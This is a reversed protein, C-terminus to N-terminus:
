AICVIRFGVYDLRNKPAYRSRYSPRCDSRQKVWAGGRVVRFHHNGVVRASGDKPHEVYSNHWFDLCWESVHGLMDVLGYKNPTWRPPAKADPPLEISSRNRVPWTQYHCNGVHIDVTCKAKKCGTKCAYEWQAESPLTFYNTGLRESLAKEKLTLIRCFEMAEYWTCMEVPLSDDGRFHSPNRGEGMVANFQGQTIPFRGMWFSPIKVTIVPKEDPFSRKSPKDDGIRCKGAPIRCLEIGGFATTWIDLGSISEDIMTKNLCYGVDHITNIPNKIHKKTLRDTIQSVLNYVASRTKKGSKDKWVFKAIDGYDAVKNNLHEYNHFLMKMLERAKKGLRTTYRGDSFDGTSYNFTFKGAEHISGM